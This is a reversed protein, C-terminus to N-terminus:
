GPLWGGVQEFAVFFSALSAGRPVTYLRATGGVGQGQLVLPPPPPAAQGEGEGGGQSCDAMCALVSHLPGLEAEFM